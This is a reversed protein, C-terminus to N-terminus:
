FSVASAFVLVFWQPFVSLSLFSLSLFLFFELLYIRFNSAKCLQLIIALHLRIYLFLSFSFTFSSCQFLKIQANWHAQPKYIVFHYRRIQCVWVSACLPLGNSHCARMKLPFLWCIVMWNAYLSTNIKIKKQKVNIKPITSKRFTYVRM